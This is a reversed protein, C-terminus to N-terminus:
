DDKPDPDAPLGAAAREDNLKRDRHSAYWAMRDLVLAAARPSPLILPSYPGGFSVVTQRMASDPVNVIPKGTREMLDSVLRMYDTEWASLGAYEGTVTRERVHAGTNQVGLFSLVVIADIADCSAVIELVRPGVDGGASAVVDLPNRRSWFPPLVEDLRAILDAPMGALSLGHRAAEDAMLVGAGGGNTLIAVARGRPLPLSTFAAGLDLLEETSTCTVVGASRAAAEWTAASGAMAGTHSAAARGGEDTLGGRLVVVPKVTTTRRAVDVFRRGDDVGEMYLLACATRPDDRLHDLVDIVTVQAENGVSVYKDLGIGRREAANVLQVGLNGSQSVLSLPGEPPHLTIFGTAHLRTENTVLGMCNPGILTIGHTVAIEALKREARAGDEGTESFGAAIVVAARVGRRGCEELVTGARDGGVALLALDPAAPLDGVSAHVPLGFCTGGRPSVPYLAGQFGGDLINHMASGGWKDLDESAGVVAVSRPACVAALDLRPRVDPVREREHDVIMLADVAVPRGGAILLPNVDIEAIEPHDLAIRGVAQVAAVLASRDVPPRGRFAGLLKGARIGAILADTEAADIPALALAVDAFAETYVGGVGFAIVPGFSPDREMGVMLERDGAVMREVLVADMAGGARTELLGYAARVGSEDRLDLLVLGADSKHQIATGLAKMVVPPGLRAFAAAAEESSRAVEGAPIEIGYDRLLRKASWEDM